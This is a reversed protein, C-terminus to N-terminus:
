ATKYYLLISYGKSFNWTNQSGKVSWNVNEGLKATWRRKTLPSFAAGDFIYENGNIKIGCCFHMKTVDRAVFSDLTYKANPLSVIKAMSGADMPTARGAAGSDTVQVAIIDANENLSGNYFATVSEIEKVTVMKASENPSDTLYEILDKYFTYPNGYQDVDRIGAHKTKYSDPISDYISHIINNTNLALGINKASRTHNYCAEIALNLLVLAENLKTPTIQRGKITKGEIMLQRFFRMFIRGKDSVFLSMFMTNFWCNAHFQMPAIISHPDLKGERRFNELMKDRAIKSTADVCKPKGKSVTNGVPIKLPASAATKELRERVGCVFLDKVEGAHVSALEQNINPRLSKANKEVADVVAGAYNSLSATDLRQIVDLSAKRVSPEDPVTKTATSLLLDDSAKHKM